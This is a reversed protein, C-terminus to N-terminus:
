PRLRRFIAEIDDAAKQREQILAQFQDRLERFARITGEHEQRLGAQEAHLEGLVMRTSWHEHLLAEHAEHLQEHKRLLPEHSERLQEHERELGACRARLQDRERVMWEAAGAFVELEAAAKRVADIASAALGGLLDQAASVGIATDRKIEM